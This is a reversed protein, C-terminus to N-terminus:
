ASAEKIQELVIDQVKDLFDPLDDASKGAERCLEDALDLATQPVEFNVDNAWRKLDVRQLPTLGKWWRKYDSM